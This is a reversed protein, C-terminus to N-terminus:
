ALISILEAPYLCRAPTSATGYLANEITVLKAPAIKTSDLIVKGTHKMKDVDVPKVSLNWTLQQPETTSGMTQYTRESQTTSAQYVLHIKYGLEATQENGIKTRYCLDFSVRPQYGFVLGNGSSAFGECAGFEAPASFAVLTASFESPSPLNLYKIGDMYYPILEGGAPVESLSILGNWAVGPPTLDGGAEGLYLVGRDIGTEYVRSGAASWVLKTM